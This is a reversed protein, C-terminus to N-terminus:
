KGRLLASSCIWIFMIGGAVAVLAGIGNVYMGIVAGMAELDQEPGATKRPAGYGGALFLGSSALIQGWAYM